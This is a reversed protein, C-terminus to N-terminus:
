PAYVPFSQFCSSFPIVSSSITPHCGQSLPCSNSYARPTPSPCPLNAHKLGHAQLSNSMVSHIFQVSPAYGPENSSVFLTAEKILNGLLFTTYELLPSHGLSLVFFELDHCPFAETYRTILESLEEMSMRGVWAKHERCFAQSHSYFFDKTTWAYLQTLSSEGCFPCLMQIFLHLIGTNLVWPVPWYQHAKFGM